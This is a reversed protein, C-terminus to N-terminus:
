SILRRYLFYSWLLAGIMTMIFALYLVLPDVISSFLFM